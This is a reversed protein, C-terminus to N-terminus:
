CVSQGSNAELASPTAKPSSAETTAEAEHSVGKGDLSAEPKQNAASETLGEELAQADVGDVSARKIPRSIEGSSMANRRTPMPSSQPTAQAGPSESREEQEIDSEPTEPRKILVDGSRARPSSSKIEEKSGSVANARTRPQSELDLESALIAGELSQGDHDKQYNELKDHIMPKIDHAKVEKGEDDGLLVIAEAMQNRVSLEIGKARQAGRVLDGASKGQGEEKAFSKLSHETVDKVFAAVHEPAPDESRLSALSDKKSPDSQYKATIELSSVALQAVYATAIDQNQKPSSEKLTINKQAAADKIIPLAVEEFAKSLGDQVAKSGLFTDVKGEKIGALKEQTKENITSAVDIITTALPTPIMGVVCNAIALGGDLAAGTTSQKLLESAKPLIEKAYESTKKVEVKGASMVQEPKISKFDAQQDKSLKVEKCLDEMASRQTQREGFDKALKGSPTIDKDVALNNYAFYTLDSTMQSLGAEDKQYSKLQKTDLRQLSDFVSKATIDALKEQQKETLNQPKIDDPLTANMTRELSTALSEEMGSLYSSKEAKNASHAEVGIEVGKKTAKIAAGVIPIGSTIGSIASAAKGIWTGSTKDSAFDTVKEEIADQVFGMDLVKAEEAEASLRNKLLKGFTEVM